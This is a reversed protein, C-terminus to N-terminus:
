NETKNGDSEMCEMLLKQSVLEALKNFDLGSGDPNMGTTEQFLERIRKELLASNAKQLLPNQVSKGLAERYNGEDTRPALLESIRDAIQEYMQDPHQEPTKM